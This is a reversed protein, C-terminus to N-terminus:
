HWFAHTNDEPFRTEMAPVLLKPFPGTFQSEVRNSRPESVGEAKSLVPGAARLSASSTKLNTSPSLCHAGKGGTDAASSPRAM